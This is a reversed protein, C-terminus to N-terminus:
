RGVILLDREGSEVDAIVLAELHTSFTWLPRLQADSEALDDM